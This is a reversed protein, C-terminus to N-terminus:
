SGAANDKTNSGICLGASLVVRPDWATSALSGSVSFSKKGLLQPTRSINNNKNTDKNKFKNLLCRTSAKEPLLSIFLFLRYRKGVWGTRHQQRLPRARHRPPVSPDRRVAPRSAIPRSPGAAGALFRNVGPVLFRSPLPQDRCSGCPPLGGAGSGGPAAPGPARAPAAARPVHPAPM